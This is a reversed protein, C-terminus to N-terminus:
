NITYFRYELAYTIVDKEISSTYDFEKRFATTISALDKAGALVSLASDLDTPRNKADVSLYGKVTTITQRIDSGNLIQVVSDQEITPEDLYVRKKNQSYLAIDGQSWPLEGAPKIGGTLNATLYTLLATRM